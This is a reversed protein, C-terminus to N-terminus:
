TGVLHRIFLQLMVLCAFTLEQNREATRQRNVVEFCTFCFHFLFICLYLNREIGIQDWDLSLSM